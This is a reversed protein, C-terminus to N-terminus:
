SEEKMETRLDKNVPSGTEYFEQALDEMADFYEEESLDSYILEEKRYINYTTM